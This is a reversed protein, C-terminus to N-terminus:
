LRIEWFTSYAGTHNARGKPIAALKNSAGSINNNRANKLVEVGIVFRMVHPINIKKANSAITISMSPNLTVATRTIRPGSMAIM